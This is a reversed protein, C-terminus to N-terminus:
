PEWYVCNQRNVTGNLKVTAEDSWLIRSMFEEDERVKHQLWECFKVRRDPDDESM